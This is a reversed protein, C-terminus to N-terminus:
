VLILPPTHLNIGITMIPDPPISCCSLTKWINTNQPWNWITSLTLSTFTRYCMVSTSQLYFLQFVYLFQASLSVFALSLLFIKSHLILTL